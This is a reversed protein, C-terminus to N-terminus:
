SGIMRHGVAVWSELAQQAAPGAIFAVYVRRAADRVRTLVGDPGGYDAEEADPFSVACVLREIASQVGDPGTVRVHDLAYLVDHLRRVLVTRLELPLAEAQRAEDLLASVLERLEDIEPAPPTTGESAILRLYSATVGLARLLDPPITSGANAGSMSTNTLLSAWRPAWHAVHEIQHEDGALEVASTIQPVLGALRCLEIPVQDGPVELVDAWVRNVAQGSEQSGAFASLVIHLRDAPNNYNAM